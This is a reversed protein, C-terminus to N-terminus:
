RRWCSLLLVGTFLALATWVALPEGADLADLFPALIYVGFCYLFGTLYVALGISITTWVLHPKM